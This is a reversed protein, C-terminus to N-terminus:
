DFLSFGDEDKEISNSVVVKEPVQEVEYPNITFGKTEKEKNEQIKNKRNVSMTFLKDILGKKRPIGLIYNQETTADHKLTTANNGLCWPVLITAIRAISDIPNMLLKEFSTGLISSMNRIIPLDMDYLTGDMVQNGHYLMLVVAVILLGKEAYTYLKKEKVLLDFRAKEEESLNDYALEYKLKEDIKRQEKEQRREKFSKM